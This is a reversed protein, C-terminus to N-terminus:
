KLRAGGGQANLKQLLDLRLFQIHITGVGLYFKVKFYDTTFVPRKERMALQLQSSLTNPYKATGKGDLLHFVNDICTLEQSLYSTVYHSSMGFSTLIARKKIEYETNTKYRSRPPRLINFAEKITEDMLVNISSSFDKYFNYINELTVDPLDGSEISKNFEEMRKVTMFSKVQLRNAIDRWVYKKIATISNSINESAHGIQYGSIDRDIVAFHDGVFPKMRDTASKMLEWARSVENICAQYNEAVAAMPQAKIIDHM